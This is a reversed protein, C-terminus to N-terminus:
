PEATALLFSFYCKQFLLDGTNLASVSRKLAADGANVHNCRNIRRRLSCGGWLLKECPAVCANTLRLSTIILGRLIELCLRPRVSPPCSLLTTATHKLLATHWSPHPTELFAPLILSLLPTHTHTITLSRTHTHLLSILCLVHRHLFSSLIFASSKRM